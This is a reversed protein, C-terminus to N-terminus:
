KKVDFELLLSVTGKGQSPAFYHIRDGNYSAECSRILQNDFVKQVRTNVDGRLAAFQELRAPLDKIAKDIHQSPTLNDQKATSEKKM